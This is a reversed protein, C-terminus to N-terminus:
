GRHAPLRLDSRAAEGGRRAAAAHRDPGTGSGELFDPLQDLANRTFVADAPPGTHYYSLLGAQVCEINSLGARAARERLVALMAPSIDVAARGVRSATALAFQGTGAGLDVVTSAPGIGQRALAALDEAPEPHGQKRDYGAVFGPDLHEPGGLAVEDLM